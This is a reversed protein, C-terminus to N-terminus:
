PSVVDADSRPGLKYHGHALVLVGTISTFTDGLDREGALSTTYDYFYPAIRLGPPYNAPNANSYFVEFENSSTGDPSADTVTQQTVQMLMCEYAEADLGSTRGAASVGYDALKYSDDYVPGFPLTTGTSTITVTPSQIENLGFYHQLTGSVDVQNGVAVTPLTGTFVHIGINGYGVPVTAPDSQVYFDTLRVGTVYLGRVTVQAGDGPYGMAQEDRAIEIPLTCPTTSCDCADGLGDHDTDTQTANSVLPCDDAGNDVGDSDQDDSPAPAGSGMATPDCADGVGDHDQDAQAGQDMPRVPNFVTKCDDVKDPVGDGDHDTSTITGSYEARAPVCSPEVETGCHALYPNFPPITGTPSVISKAVGCVPLASAVAAKALAPNQSAPGSTAAILASDGYIADGGRLVLAVSQPNGQVVASHTAHATADFIAIDAIRGAGLVGLKREIGAAFAANTTVMQWLRYDSFYKGLYTDSFSKACALERTLNVSGTVSWDTGLAIGVGMKDLMVVPATNGYLDLNSRPAWSVWAHRQALTLAESPTIAVAHVVTDNSFVSDLAGGIACSLESAATTNIGEGLHLVESDAARLHAPATNGSCGPQVAGFGLPFTNSTVRDTVGERMDRGTAKLEAIDMTDINRALGDVGDNGVISTEGSVVHRMEAAMMTDHDAHCNTTIGADAKGRWDDRSQFTKIDEHDPFGTTSYCNLHEHTNILGPSIVGKACDVRTARAAAAAYTPNTSCACDVCLIIGSGDVLVEGHKLVTDATLVDGRLLL